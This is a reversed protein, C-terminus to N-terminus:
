LSELIKVLFDMTKNVSNISCEEKSTHPYAIYPGISIASMAKDPRKAMLISAELGAHVSYVKAYENFLIQHCEQAIQLVRSDLDPNWGVFRCAPGLLEAGTLKALSKMELHFLDMESEASSRSFLEVVFKDEKINALACNVSTQVAGVIGPNMRIVGHPCVMLTDIILESLEKSMVKEPIEAAECLLLPPKTEIIKYEEYFEAFSEALATKWDEVNEVMVVVEASSPIVNRARGATFSAINFEGEVKNMAHSIIRAMVKIANGRNEGIQIGSHGSRLDKVIIKMPSIEPVDESFTIPLHLEHEQGGSSGVCIAHDEESDLNIIVTAEFPVECEDAGVMTTEEDITFLAEIPGHVLTDAELVALAMAVGMGNDAGLSTNQALLLDGEINLSIPDSEFNIAVNEDCVCVMDLHGQLLVVPSDEKGQTAPKQILVNGVRDRHTKLGWTKAMEEIRDGLHTCNGSGHPISCIWLFHEFARKQIPTYAFDTLNSM